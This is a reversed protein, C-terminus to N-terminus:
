FLEAQQFEKRGQWGRDQLWVFVLFQRNVPSKARYHPFNPYHHENLLQHCRELECSEAIRVQLSELVAQNEPSPMRFTKSM